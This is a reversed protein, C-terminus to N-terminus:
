ADGYEHRMLNGRGIPDGINGEAGGDKGGVDRVRRERGDGRDGAM